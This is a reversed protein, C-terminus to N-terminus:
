AQGRRRGNRVTSLCEAYTDLIWQRDAASSDEGPNPFFARREVAAIHQLLKYAIQEAASTDNPIM